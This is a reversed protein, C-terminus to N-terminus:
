RDDSPTDHTDAGAGGLLTRLLAEDHASLTSVFSALVADRDEQRDLLRRMHLAALDAEQAVPRWLVPRGSGTRTVARKEHLRTLITIVTTYALDGDLRRQVWAAAVPGNAEGLVSLVQAELQGQGRRRARPDRERGDQPAVM